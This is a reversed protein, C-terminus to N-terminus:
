RGSVRDRSHRIAGFVRGVDSAMGHDLNDNSNMVSSRGPDM